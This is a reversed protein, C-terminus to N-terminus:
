PAKWKDSSVPWVMGTTILIESNILVIWGSWDFGLCHAPLLYNKLLFGRFFGIEYNFHSTRRHDQRGTRLFPFSSTFLVRRASAVNESHSSDHSFYSSKLAFNESCIRGSSGTSIGWEGPRPCVMTLRRPKGPFSGPSLKFNRISRRM